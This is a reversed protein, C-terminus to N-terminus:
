KETTELLGNTYVIIEPMEFELIQSPSRDVKGPRQRRRSKTMREDNIFVIITEPHREAFTIITHM